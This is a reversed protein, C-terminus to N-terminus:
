INKDGLDRFAPSFAVTWAPGSLRYAPLPQQRDDVIIDPARAAPCSSWNVMAGAM